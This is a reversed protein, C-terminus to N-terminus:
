SAGSAPSQSRMRMSQGRAIPWKLLLREGNGV